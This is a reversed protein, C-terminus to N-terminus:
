ASIAPHANGPGQAPPYPAQAPLRPPGGISVQRGPQLTVLSIHPHHPLPSLTAPKGQMRAPDDSSAMARPALDAAPLNELTSEQPKRRPAPKKTGELLKRQEETLLNQIKSEVDKQLDALKKKQDETLKLREQLQPPLLPGPIAGGRAGDVNPRGRPKDGRTEQLTKKQADTLVGALRALHDSRLQQEAQTAERYKARDGNKRAEELKAQIDKQKQQFEHAIKDFKEKQEPSLNLKELAKAPVLEGGSGPGPRRLQADAKQRQRQTQATSTRDEAGPALTLGVVLCAGAGLLLRFVHM